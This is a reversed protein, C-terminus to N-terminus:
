ERKINKLEACKEEWYFEFDVNRAITTIPLGRNVLKVIETLVTKDQVGPLNPYKDFNKAVVKYAIETLSEIENSPFARDKTKKAKIIVKAIHRHNNFAERAKQEEADAKAAKRSAAIKAALSM